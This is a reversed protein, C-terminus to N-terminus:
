KANLNIEIISTHKYLLFMKLDFYDVSGTSVKQIIHKIKIILKM